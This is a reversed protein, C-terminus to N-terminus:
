WFLSGVQLAASHLRDQALDLLAEGRQNGWALRREYSGHIVDVALLSHLNLDGSGSEFLALIHPAALSRRVYSRPKEDIGLGPSRNYLEGISVRIKRIIQMEAVISACFVAVASLLAGAGAGAVM